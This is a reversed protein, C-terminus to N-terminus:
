ATKNDIRIYRVYSNVSVNGFYILAICTIAYKLVHPIVVAHVHVHM